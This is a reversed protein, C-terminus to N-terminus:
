INRFGLIESEDPLDADILDWDCLADDTTLRVYSVEKQIVGEPTSVRCLYRKPYKPLSVKTSLFHNNM